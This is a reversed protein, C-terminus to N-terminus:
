SVSWENGYKRWQKIINNPFNCVPCMMPMIHHHFCGSSEHGTFRSKCFPCQLLISNEHTTGFSEGQNRNIITLQCKTTAIIKDIEEKSKPLKPPIKRKTVYPQFSFHEM